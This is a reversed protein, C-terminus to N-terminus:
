IFRQIPQTILSIQRAMNCDLNLSICGFFLNKLKKHIIQQYKKQLLTAAELLLSNSYQMYLNM